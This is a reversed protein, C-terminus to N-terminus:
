TMGEVDPIPTPTPVETPAPTAGGGSDEFEEDSITRECGPLAGLLALAVVAAFAWELVSRGRSV